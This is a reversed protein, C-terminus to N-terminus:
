VLILPTDFSVLRLGNNGSRCRRSTGGSGRRRSPRCGARAWWAPVRRASRMAPSTRRRRSPARNNSARAWAICPRTVHGCDTRQGAARIVKEFHARPDFFQLAIDVVEDVLECALFAHAAFAHRDG